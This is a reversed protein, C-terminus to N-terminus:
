VERKIPRLEAAPSVLATRVVWLGRLERVPREAPFAGGASFFLLALAPLLRM